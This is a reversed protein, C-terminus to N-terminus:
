SVTATGIVAASTGFTWTDTSSTFPRVLAAGAFAPVFAGFGQRHLSARPFFWRAIPDRAFALLLSDTASAVDAQSLTEIKVDDFVHRPVPRRM